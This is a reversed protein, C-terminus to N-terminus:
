KLEKQLKKKQTASLKRVKAIIETTQDDDESFLSSVSEGFYVSMKEINEIRPLVDYEIYNHLSPIPIRMKKALERFTLPEPAEPDLARDLLVKYRFM